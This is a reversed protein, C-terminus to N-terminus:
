DVIAFRLCLIDFIKKQTIPNDITTLKKILMKKSITRIQQCLLISPKELEVKLSTLQEKGITPNLDVLYIMSIWKINEYDAYKFDSEIEKMDQIYLEDKFSQYQTTIHNSKLTHFLDDKITVTKRIM